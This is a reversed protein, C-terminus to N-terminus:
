LPRGCKPCFDFNETTSYGCNSCTKGVAYTNQFHLENENIFTVNGKEIEKGLEKSIESVAGCCNMKVFYRKNWKFLPIFFFSVYSYTTFVNIQGYKQCNKCMTLQNYELQKSGQGGGMIFFM